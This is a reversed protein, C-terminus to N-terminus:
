PSRTNRSRRQLQIAQWNSIPSFIITLLHILSNFSLSQCMKVRHKWRFIMMIQSTSARRCSQLTMPSELYSVSSVLTRLDRSTNEMAGNVTVLVVLPVEVAVQNATHMPTSLETAVSPRTGLAVPSHTRLLVTREHPSIQHALGSIHPAAATASIVATRHTLYITSPAQNFPEPQGLGTGLAM